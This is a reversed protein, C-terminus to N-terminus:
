HTALFECVLVLLKADLVSELPDIGVLVVHSLIPLATQAVAGEEKTLLVGWIRNLM